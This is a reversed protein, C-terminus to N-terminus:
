KCSFVCVIICMCLSANQMWFDDCWKYIVGDPDPFLDEHIDEDPYTEFNSVDTNGQIRPKYPPKIEQKYM